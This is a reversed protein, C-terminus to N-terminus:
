KQSEEPLTGAGRLVETITLEYVDKKRADIFHIILLCAAMCLLGCVIGPWESGFIKQGVITGIVLCIVPVIYALFAAKVVKQGGLEVAVRDGKKAFAANKARVIQKGPTCGGKCSM